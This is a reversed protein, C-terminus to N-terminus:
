ANNISKSVPVDVIEKGYLKSVSIDFTILSAARNCCLRSDQIFFITPIAITIIATAVIVVARMM